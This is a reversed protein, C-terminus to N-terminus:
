VSPPLSTVLIPTKNRGGKRNQLLGMIAPHIVSEISTSLHILSHISSHTPHIFSPYTYLHTSSHIVPPHLSPHTTCPHSVPPHTSLPIPSQHISVHFCLEICIKPLSYKLCCLSRSVPTVNGVVFCGGLSPYSVCSLGLSPGIPLHSSCPLWSLGASKM